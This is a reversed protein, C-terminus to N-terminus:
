VPEAVVANGYVFFAVSKLPVEGVVQAHVSVIANAGLSSARLGMNKNADELVADHDTKSLGAGGYAVGSVIGIHKVIRYGLLETGPIIMKKDM